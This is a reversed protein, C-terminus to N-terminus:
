YEMVNGVEAAISKIKWGRKELERSEQFPANAERLKEIPAEDM